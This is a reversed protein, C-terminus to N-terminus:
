SRSTPAGGFFDAGSSGTIKIPEKSSSTKHLLSGRYARAKAQYLNNFSHVALRVPSRVEKRGDDNRKVEKPNTPHKSRVLVVPGPLLTLCRGIKM